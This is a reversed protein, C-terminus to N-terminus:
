LSPAHLKKALAVVANSILMQWRWRHCASKASQWGNKDPAGSRKKRM